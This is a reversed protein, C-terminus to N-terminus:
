AAGKARQILQYAVFESVQEHLTKRAEAARAESEAFAKAVAGIEPLQITVCHLTGDEGRVSIVVNGYITPYLALGREPEDFVVFGGESLEQWTPPTM